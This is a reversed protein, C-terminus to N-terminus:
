LALNKDNNINAKEVIQLPISTQLLISTLTVEAKYVVVEVGVELAQQLLGYYREDLQASIKLHKVSNNTVCFCLVSRHGSERAQILAQMNPLGDGIGAPFFGDGTDNAFIVHEIALYCQTKEKELLLFQSRFQEFHGGTHLISYGQLEKFVGNRIGEIVLPKLVEPNICVLHGFDVEVLEWTPLCHYGLANSYWIKSGLIDCGHMNGINPCRIILKKRNRLIIEAMFKFNRKLLTAESLHANFKM